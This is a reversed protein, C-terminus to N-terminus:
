RRREYLLLPDDDGTIRKFDGSTPIWEAVPRSVRNLPDSEPAPLKDLHLTVLYDADTDYLIKIARQVDNNAYGLSTYECSFGVEGQMKEAYFWATVANFDPLEAGIISYHRARAKSCSEHVARSMREISARDNAPREVYPFIGDISLAGQAAAQTVGANVTLAAIALLALWTQRLMTLSLGFLVAVVPVMPALLRPDENIQRSYALLGLVITGALCLAFLLGTEVIGHMWEKVPHRLQEALAAALGVVSVALTTGALLPFPSLALLLQRSWFSLKTFLPSISGYLLAIDGETAERAHAVVLTWHLAYWALCIAALALAGFAFGYDALRIPRRPEDQTLFRAVAIYVVFPAVFGASTTKAAMALAVSGIIGALLRLWSLRNAQATVWIMAAVTTVQVGEVLFQHNLGIFSSAGACLAMGATAAWIDAGLRRLTSFVLWLTAAGALINVLLFAREAGMFADALPQTIQALWVLLPARSDPVELFAWLWAIPGDHFAHGIKLTQMGYYAQDWPWVRHDRAIWILSPILLLASILIPILTVRSRGIEISATPRKQL